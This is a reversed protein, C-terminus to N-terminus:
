LAGPLPAPIPADATITTVWQVADAIENGFRVAAAEQSAKRQEVDFPNAADKAHQLLVGTDLHAQLRSEGIDLGFFRDLSILTQLPASFFADSRLSRVKQTASLLLRLFPYMLSLWIMGVARGDNLPEDTWIRGMGVASLDMRARTLMNRAYERREPSRLMAVLFSELDSYLLLMKSDRYRGLLTPLLSTCSDTLKIVAHESAGYSRSTLALALDMIAPEGAPLSAQLKQQLGLQWIGSLNHM